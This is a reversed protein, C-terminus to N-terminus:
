TQSSVTVDQVSTTKVQATFLKTAHTNMSTMITFHGGLLQAINKLPHNATSVM